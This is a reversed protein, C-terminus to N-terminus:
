RQCEAVGLDALGVLLSEVVPSIAYQQGDLEGVSWLGLLANTLFISDAEQVDMKTLRTEKLEISLQRALQMVQDRMIGAVGCEDLLPTLVATGRVVFLNTMTGCVVEARDNLMLGEQYDALAPDSWEARAMVQELRNLTKLGALVPNRAIPTDCYRLRATSPPLKAATTTTLGLMRSPQVLEPPAYGRPGQGRTVIIKLTAHAEDGVWDIVEARIEASIQLPIGLRACGRELRAFHMDLFRCQGERVAITEFLGDGYALGRDDAALTATVAGNILWRTGSM